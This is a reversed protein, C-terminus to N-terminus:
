SALAIIPGEDFLRVFENSLANDGTKAACSVLRDRIRQALARDAHQAFLLSVGRFRPDDILDTQLTKDIEFAPKMLVDM